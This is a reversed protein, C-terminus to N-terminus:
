QQTAGGFRCCQPVAVMPGLLLVIMEDAEM